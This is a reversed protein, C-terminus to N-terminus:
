VDDEAGVATGDDTEGVANGDELTEVVAENVM